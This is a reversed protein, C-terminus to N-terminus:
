ALAEALGYRALRRYLTMRSCSLAKAAESKNGGARELARMLTAREGLEVHPATAQMAVYPPLDIARITCGQATVLAIEVVNRLERVNGRWGHGELAVIADETLRPVPVGAQESLEVLLHRAIPVIDERRDRLPPIEIRAVALRYFLDERFRGAEVEAELDRNTAAVIRVDFRTPNHAGLRWAEGTEIARLIKAQGALSLEGIEDLLLTGGDALKLKGPYATHAGSFAGKEYGFLEGELLADPIAACNLAVLPGKARRGRRHLIAAVCDKGTGTEGTILVSVNTPALRLAFDRVVHLAASHGALGDAAADAGHGPVHAFLMRAIEDDGADLAIFDDAGARFAAVAAAQSSDCGRVIARAVPFRDRVATLIDTPSDAALIAVRVEDCRPGPDPPLADLARFRIGTAIAVREICSRRRVDGDIVILSPWGQRM